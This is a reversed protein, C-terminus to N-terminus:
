AVLVTRGARLAALEGAPVARDLIAIDLADPVPTDGCAAQAARLASHGDIVEPPAYLVLSAPGRRQDIFRRLLREVDGDRWAPACFFAPPSALDWARFEDRPVPLDCSGCRLLDPGECTIAGDRFPLGEPRCRIGVM